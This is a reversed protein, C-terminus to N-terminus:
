GPAATALVGDEGLYVTRVQEGAPLMTIVIEADQTAAAVNSAPEAGAAVLREVASTTLDFVKLQHGAKLLNRAMPGGMNGLGIFGIAAMVDRRDASTRWGDDCM